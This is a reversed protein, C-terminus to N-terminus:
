FVWYHPNRNVSYKVSFNPATSTVAADNFEVPQTKFDAMLAEKLIPFIEQRKTIKM